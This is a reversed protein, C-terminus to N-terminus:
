RPLIKEPPPRLAEVFVLLFEYGSVSEPCRGMRSPWGAVGRMV